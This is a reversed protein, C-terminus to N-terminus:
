AAEPNESRMLAEGVFVADVGAEELRNLQEAEAIGSEWVVTVGGPIEGMLEGAGPEGGLAFARYKLEAQPLERKRRELEERTSKLIRELVTPTAM